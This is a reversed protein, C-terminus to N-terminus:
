LYHNTGQAGIIRLATEALASYCSSGRLAHLLLLPNGESTSTCAQERPWEVAETERTIGCFETCVELFRAQFILTGEM